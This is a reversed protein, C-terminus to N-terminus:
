TMTLPKMRRGLRRIMAVDMWRALGHTGAVGKHAGYGGQLAEAAPVFPSVRNMSTMRCAMASLPEKKLACRM